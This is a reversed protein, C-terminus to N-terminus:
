GSISGNIVGDELIPQKDMAVISEDTNAQSHLIMLFGKCSLSVVHLMEECKSKEQVLLFV